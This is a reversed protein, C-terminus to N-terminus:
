GLSGGLYAAQRQLALLPNPPQFRYDVFPGAFCFLLARLLGGKVGNIKRALDWTVDGGRGARRGFQKVWGTYWNVPGQLFGTFHEDSFVRGGGRGGGVV